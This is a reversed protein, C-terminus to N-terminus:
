DKQDTWSCHGHYRDAFDKESRGACVATCLFGAYGTHGRLKSCFRIKKSMDAGRCPVGPCDGFAPERTEMTRNVAILMHERAICTQQDLVTVRVVDVLKEVQKKVQSVVRDDGTVM